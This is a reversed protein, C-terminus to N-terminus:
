RFRRALYLSVTCLVYQAVAASVLAPHRLMDGTGMVTNGLAVVLLAQSRRRWAVVCAAIVVAYGVANLTFYLM